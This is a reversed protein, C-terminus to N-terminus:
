PLVQTSVQTGIVKFKRVHGRQPFSSDEGGTSLITESIASGSPVTTGTFTFSRSVNDPVGSFTITGSGSFRKVPAKTKIKAMFTSNAFGINQQALGGAPVVVVSGPTPAIPPTATPDGPTGPTVIVNPSSDGGAPPGALATSNFTNEAGSFAQTDTNTAANAVATVIGMASNVVGFVPGYYVVGRYYWVNSSQAGLIGGGFLVNSSQPATPSSVTSQNSTSSISNNRVAWRYLGTGNTMTAVAEYIGDDGSQSSNNGSWPGGVWAHANLSPMLIIATFVAFAKKMM